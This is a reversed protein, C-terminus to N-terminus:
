WIGQFEGNSGYVLEAMIHASSRARSLSGVRLMCHRTILSLNVNLSVFYGDECGFM